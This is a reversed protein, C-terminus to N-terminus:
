YLLANYAAHGITFVVMSAIFNRQQTIAHHSQWLFITLDILFQHVLFDVIGNFMTYVIKVSSWAITATTRFRSRANGQASM